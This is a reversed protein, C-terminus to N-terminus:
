PKRLITLSFLVTKDAAETWIGGAAPSNARNVLAKTAVESASSLVMLRAEFNVLDGQFILSNSV